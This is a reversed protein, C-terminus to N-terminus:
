SPSVREAIQRLSPMGARVVNKCHTRSLRSPSESLYARARSSPSSAIASSSISIASPPLSSQCRSRKRTSARLHISARSSACLYPSRTVRAPSAAAGSPTTSSGSSRLPASSLSSSSSADAPAPACILPLKAASSSSSPAAPSVHHNYADQDARAAHQCTDNSSVDHRSRGRRLQYCTRSLYRVVLGRHKHLGLRRFVQPLQLVRLKVPQARSSPLVRTDVAAFLLRTSHCGCGPGCSSNWRRASNSTNYPPER